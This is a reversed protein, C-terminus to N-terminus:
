CFIIYKKKFFGFSDFIVHFMKNIMFTNVAM